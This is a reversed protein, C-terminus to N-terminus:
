VNREALGRDAHTVEMSRDVCLLEVESTTPKTRDSMTPKGVPEPPLESPGPSSVLGAEDKSMNYQVASAGVIATALILQPTPKQGWAVSIFMTVIMSVAHAYVRAINDAYKLIASIALGNLANNLILVYGWTNFGHFLGTMEPSAVADKTMNMGSHAGVLNMVIGWFYLICNQWHISSKGKSKMLKETYIGGLASLICSIVSLVLGMFSTGHLEGICVPIQSVAAGCSLQWIALYQYGALDRGLIFRFLLGTFAIKMQSLLQFTTTDVYTLIVFALNNNIAYIVAPVAYELASRIDLSAHKYDGTAFLFALSIFSKLLESCMTSVMTNYEIRGEPSKSVTVLVPQLTMLVVGALVYPVQKGDRRSTKSM